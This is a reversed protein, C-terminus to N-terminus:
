ILYCHDQLQHLFPIHIGTVRCPSTSYWPKGFIKRGKNTILITAAKFVVWCGFQGNKFIGVIALKEQCIRESASIFQWLVLESAPVGKCSWTKMDPLFRRSFGPALDNAAANSTPSKHFWNEHHQPLPLPFHREHKIGVKQPIRKLPHGTLSSFRM